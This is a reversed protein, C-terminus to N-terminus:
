DARDTSRNSSTSRNASTTHNSSATRSTVVAARGLHALTRTGSTPDRLTLVDRGAAVATGRVSSGGEFSIEVTTREEVLGRLADTLPVAPRQPRDGGSARVDTSRPVQLLTVVQLRVWTTGHETDLVVHDATLVRVRGRVRRGVTTDLIVTTGSEAVGELSGLFTADQDGAEALLRRQSRDAVAQAHRADDLLQLHPDSLPRSM